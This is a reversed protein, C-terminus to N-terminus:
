ASRLIQMPCKKNWIKNTMNITDSQYISPRISFLLHIIIFVSYMIFSRCAIRPILLGATFSSKSLCTNGHFLTSLFYMIGPMVNSAHSLCDWSYVSWRLSAACGHNPISLESAWDLPQFDFAHSLHLIVGVSQEASRARVIRGLIRFGHFGEGVVEEYQPTCYLRNGVSLCAQRPSLSKASSDHM